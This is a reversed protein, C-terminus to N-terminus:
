LLIRRATEPPCGSGILRRMDGLDVDTMGLRDADRLGFGLRMFERRRWRHVALRELEGPRRREGIGDIM